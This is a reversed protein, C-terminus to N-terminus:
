RAEPEEVVIRIATRGIREQPAPETTEAPRERRRRRSQSEPRRPAPAAKVPAAGTSQEIFTAYNGLDTFRQREFDHRINDTAAGVENCTAVITERGIDNLRFSYPAGPGPVRLEQGSAVLANTEFDSPFIVTGRGRKDVSILTLHCDHSVRVTLHLLDGKNYRSKDATLTIAPGPDIAALESEVAATAPSSEVEPPKRGLGVILDRGHREIERRGVLGQLLRRALLAAPADGKAGLETLADVGIGLEASARVADLPRAHEHALAVLPDVGDLTLVPDVGIRRLADAVALRDQALAAAQAPDVLSDPRAAPGSAHCGLCGLGAGIESAGAATSAAVGPPVADQREGSPGAVFYAPLGNPLLFMSRRHANAVSESLPKASETALEASSTGQDSHYTSWLNGGRAPVRELMTPLPGFRAKGLASRSGPSAPSSAAPATRDARLISEIEDVTGPLGLVEYYLPARMVSDAFWDARAVPLSTGFSSRLAVPLEPVLGAPDNSSRMIREWHEPLWGLDDLNIRFLTRAPDISVVAVPATKWSLSNFLRVVAQRFAGLAEFSVCSNHLHAISVFRLRGAGSGAGAAIGSLAAAHDEATVLRRDRCVPRPSLGAIWARVQGIEEPTPQALPTREHADLPMLRRLMMLYLRSGDPNGPQVLHPADVLEDLRLINGFAAAPNARELKGGQHCRACHRELVAYASHAIPDAPPNVPRVQLPKVGIAVGAAPSPEAAQALTPSAAGATQAVAAYPGASLAAFVGLMRALQFRTLWESM